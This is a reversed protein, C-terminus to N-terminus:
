PQIAVEQEAGSSFLAMLQTKGAGNDKAYIRVRDAAPASPATMEILEMTGGVTSTSSGNLLAVTATTSRWCATPSSVTGGLAIGDVASFLGGSGFRFRETSLITLGLNTTSVWYFGTGAAGGTPRLFAASTTGLPTVLSPTNVVAASARSFLSDAWGFSQANPLDGINTTM